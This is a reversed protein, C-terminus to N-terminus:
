ADKYSMEVNIDVFAPVPGNVSGTSTTPLNGDIRQCTFFLYLKRNNTPTDSTDNFRLLKPYVKTIDMKFMQSLPYDNNNYQNQVNNPSNVAFGSMVQNLGLKFTRKKLVTIVDRNPEKLLDITTGDFGTSSSGFQFFSGGTPDCLADLNSVSDVLHKNIKVLWLTIHLPCANYNITTDFSTNIRLVGSIVCRVPKIENGVRGAQGQGQSVAFSSNSTISDPTLILVSQPWSTSQTNYLARGTQFFNVKKTEIQRNIVARVRKNFQANYVQKIVKKVKRKTSTNSKKVSYKKTKKYLM